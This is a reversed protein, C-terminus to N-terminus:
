DRGARRGDPGRLEIFDCLEYLRSHIRDGVRDKLRPLADPSEPAPDRPDFNTTAILTRHANYRRSVLQDLVSVEWETARGKGLEDIALVDVEVLPGLLAEEGQDAQYAAKLDSLLHFFDVFRVTYGRELAFHSLLASCLHTKGGGPAGFLLMGRAGPRYNERWRKMQKQVLGQNGGRAEFKELTCRAMRAPIGAENFRAVHRHLHRCDCPRTTPPVSSQDFVWGSGGCMPCPLRCPCVRAAAKEDLSELLYGRDGCRLCNV